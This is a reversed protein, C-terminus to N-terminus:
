QVQELRWLTDEEDQCLVAQPVRVHDEWSHHRNGCFLCPVTGRCEALRVRWDRADELHQCQWAGLLIEIWVWLTVVAIPLLWLWSLM